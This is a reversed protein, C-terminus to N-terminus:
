VREADGLDVVIMYEKVNRIVNLLELFGEPGRLGWIMTTAKQSIHVIGPAIDHVRSQVGQALFLPHVVKPIRVESKEKIKLNLPHLPRRIRFSM